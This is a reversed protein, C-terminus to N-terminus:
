EPSTTRKSRFIFKLKRGFVGLSEIMSTVFSVKESVDGIDNGTDDIGVITVNYRIGADLNEIKVEEDLINRLGKSGYVPPKIFM